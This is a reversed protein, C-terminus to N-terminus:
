VLDYTARTQIRDPLEMMQSVSVRHRHLALPRAASMERSARSQPRNTVIAMGADRVSDPCISSMAKAHGLRSQDTTREHVRVIRQRSHRRRNVADALQGHRHDRRTQASGTALGRDHVSRSRPWRSSDARLQQASVGRSMRPRWIRVFNLPEAHTHCSPTVIITRYSYKM